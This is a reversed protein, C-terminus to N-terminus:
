LGRWFRVVKFFYKVKIVIPMKIDVIALAVNETRVANIAEPVSSAELVRYGVYELRDSMTQRADKDDELILIVKKKM